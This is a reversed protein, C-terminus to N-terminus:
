TLGVDVALVADHGAAQFRAAPRRGGMNVDSELRRAASWSAGRHRSSAHFRAWPILLQLCGSDIVVRGGSMEPPSTVNAPDAKPSVHGHDQGHSGCGVILQRVL